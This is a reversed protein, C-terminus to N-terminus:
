NATILLRQGVEFFLHNDDGSFGCSQKGGDARRGAEGSAGHSEQAGAGPLQREGHGASSTSQVYALRHGDTAVM